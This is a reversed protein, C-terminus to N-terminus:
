VEQDETQEEGADNENAKESDSFELSKILAAIHAGRAISNDFHFSLEPTVRLNLRKALMTRLYGASSILGKEVENLDGQLHSYYIRAFKLDPSVEVSTISLFAERIRPDKVTSLIVAMEDRVEDNLRGRRYKAM